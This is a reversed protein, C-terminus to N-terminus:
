CLDEWLQHQLPIGIKGTKGDGEMPAIHPFESKLLTMLSEFILTNGSGSLHLGDSLHKTYDDGDQDGGLLAFVDLCPCNKHQSAVKKCVEGYSAALTSNRNSQPLGKFNTWKQADVPPPTFLIIPLTENGFTQRITTVIKSLNTGYEEIPVHQRSGPATADNAGLFVTCFLTTSHQQQQQQQEQNNNNNPVFMTPLIDLAHRTNYGSFGRNLVDARRIYASALLSAWGVNGDVGFGEQTLSDGFLFISPRPKVVGTKTVM